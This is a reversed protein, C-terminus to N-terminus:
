RKPKQERLIVKGVGGGTDGNGGVREMKLLVESRICGM